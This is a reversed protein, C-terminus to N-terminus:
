FYFSKSSEWFLFNCAKGDSPITKKALWNICKFPTWGNSIFKVNNDASSLVELEKDIKLNNNFLDQIIKTINGKFPSYMISYSDVIAEPSILKLKYVQTNQDRALVRDEVSFVRFTKEIIFRANNPFGPTRLKVILYEEGVIPFHKILNASDSLIIEGTMVNGFINEYINLEIFYDLLSVSIGTPAILSLDEISVEGPAQLGDQIINSM